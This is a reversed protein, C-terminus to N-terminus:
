HLPSKRGDEDFVGWEGGHAESLRFDASFLHSGENDPM